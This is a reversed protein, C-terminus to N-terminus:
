LPKKNELLRKFIEQRQEEPSLQSFRYMQAKESYCPMAHSVISYETSCFGCKRPTADIVNYPKNIWNM